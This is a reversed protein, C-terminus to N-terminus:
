IEVKRLLKQTSGNLNNLFPGRVIIMWTACKRAGRDNYKRLYKPAVLNWLIPPYELGRGELTTMGKKATLTQGNLIHYVWKRISCLVEYRRLAAVINVGSSSDFTEEIDM